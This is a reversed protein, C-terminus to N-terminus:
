RAEQFVSITPPARSRNQITLSYQPDGFSVAEAHSLPVLVAVIDKLRIIATSTVTTLSVSDRTIQGVVGQQFVGGVQVLVPLNQLSVLLGRLTARAGHCTVIAPARSQTVATAVSIQEVAIFSVEFPDLIALLGHASGVFTGSYEVGQVVVSIEQGVSFALHLCDAMRTEEKKIKRAKSCLEVKKADLETKSEEIKRSEELSIAFETARLQRGNNTGNGKERGASFFYRKRNNCLCSSM